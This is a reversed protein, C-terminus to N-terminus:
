DLTVEVNYKKGPEYPLVDGNYEKGDVIIKIINNCGCDKLQTYHIQYEASRFTKTISCNKWTPPLCPNLKLGQLSPQLGFIYQVLAKALWPGSATRWSQGATAYRYGTEETFYCNCMIYPECKKEVWKDNFPLIKELGAEVHFNRKLISDVALKWASAHLYVGGNENVGAPKQSMHGIYDAYKTYSPWSILTGLPKELYKDVSKIATLHKGNEGIGSLVSWLQPILFIKGEDCEASGIKIADDTYATLYYEGDWGERNVIERIEAARKESTYADELRGCLKAIEAFQTCAKYWAMSLWISVGKGRLGARDLTDNWDGGWIKILGYHGRFNWLFDVSRKIHEYVSAVTGDNFPLEEELISLDGLEMLVSYVAHTLWVTNDSFNNDRIQGDIFTRPAYGNSYQYSFVRKLREWALPANISGLCESDQTMDRFGNHRVRAWRSGMNAQHKLWFNFLRNLDKDPTQINVGAIQLTFKNIVKKLEHEITDGKFYFMRLNEVETLSKSTGVIFHLTLEEGADLQLSAELAFCLKESNCCSNRCGGYSLAEPYSEEGYVGIFANKCTDYGCIAYNSTMFGYIETEQESGFAKYTKGVVANLSHDYWGTATNYGQPKYSGDLETRIYPFVKIRCSCSRHNKLRLTWIECAETDPVFVRLQSQILNYQLNIETYGLGHICNYLKYEKNPPFANATWISGNEVDLIYMNRNSVLPIRRGLQDQAFGEGFGVQSIFANYNNNWLYNYWHRPTKPVTITFTSGDESFHGFKEKM